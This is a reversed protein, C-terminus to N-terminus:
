RAEEALEGARSLVNRATRAVAEDVFSGSATTAVARGEVLAAGYVQLQEHALQIQDRTPAFGEHIAHLQKPHIASKGSFGLQRAAEVSRKLGDADGLDTFAGDVPGVLGAARSCIVTWSRAFLTETGDASPRVGLDAVFDAHGFVLAEVRSDATAIENARLVGEASELTCQLRISGPEIGRGSELETLLESVAAVDDPGAVKPIRIADLGPLVIARLDELGAGGAVDGIRVVRRVRSSAIDALSAAIAARAAGKREPAVADELDMIVADAGAALAKRIMPENDGPVFLYSRPPLAGADNM